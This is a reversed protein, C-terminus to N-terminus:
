ADKTKYIVMVSYANWNNVPNINYKIDIVEITTENERLYNNVINEFDSSHPTRKVFLKIQVM